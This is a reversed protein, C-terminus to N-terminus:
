QSLRWIDLISKLDKGGLLLAFGIFTKRVWRWDQFKPCCTKRQCKWRTWSSWAPPQLGCPSSAKSRLLPFVRWAVSWSSAVYRGMRVNPGFWVSILWQHTRLGTCSIPALTLNCFLLSLWEQQWCYLYKRLIHLTKPILGFVWFGTLM